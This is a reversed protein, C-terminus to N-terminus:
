DFLGYYWPKKEWRSEGLKKLNIGVISDKDIYKGELYLDGLKDCASLSGLSASKKLYQIAIARLDVSMDELGNEHVTVLNYYVNLYAEPYNYKNAMITSYIMVEQIVYDFYAIELKDYARESGHSIVKEKLVEMPVGPDNMSRASCGLVLLVCLFTFIESIIRSNKM